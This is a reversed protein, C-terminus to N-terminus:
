FLPESLKVFSGQVEMGGRRGWREGEGGETERGKGGRETKGIERVSEREVGERRRREGIRQL